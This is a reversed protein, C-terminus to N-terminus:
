KVLDQAQFIPLLVSLVVFGVFTGMVLVIVPEFLATLRKVGTDVEFDLSDSVRSLMKPLDGTEEGVAVMHTLVPPFAGSNRMSEAIPRGERVDNEVKRASLVFVRNGSAIGALNIAELIPVGGFVLTGLVRAFQSVTSKRFLPGAIPLKLILRDRVLAGPDTAFFIRLGIIGGIIGVLLLIWNNSLFATLGLLLVTPLPLDGGMDEFVKGLRPIVFGLLFGVVAFSTVTLIVPYVLASTIATRRAVEKEQFDALKTAVESFQGSAEGARLTQAFVNPFQKPFKGLADSVPTGGRVDALAANAIDTLTQSESQEGVVELVRDLPLGAGSLDALRRTFLALDAKSAGKKRKEDNLNATASQVGKTAKIESVYRGQAALLQVAAESSTAEIIGTRQTGSPEFAVYSFTTM